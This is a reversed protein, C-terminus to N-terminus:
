VTSKAFELLSLIKSGVVKGTRFMFSIDEDRQRILAMICNTPALEGGQQRERQWENSTTIGDLFIDWISPDHFLKTVDAGACQVVTDAGPEETISDPALLAEATVRPTSDLSKGRVNGRAVGEQNVDHETNSDLVHGATNQSTDLRKNYEQWIDRFAKIKFGLLIAEKIFDQFLWNSSLSEVQPPKLVLDFATSKLKKLYSASFSLGTFIFNELNDQSLKRIKECRDSQLKISNDGFVAGIVTLMRARAQQQRLLHSSPQLVMMTVAWPLQLALKDSLADLSSSVTSIASSDAGLSEMLRDVAALHYEILKLAM